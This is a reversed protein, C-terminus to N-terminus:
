SESCDLGCDIGPPTSVVLGSGLGTRTVTLVHSVPVDDNQITGVGQADAVTANTAGSLNVFFTENPEVVTDGLVTVSVPRTPVGPDFTLAGSAAVYDGGVTTATGDATAYSVSVTQSSAPSLSVTFTATTTGGDGEVVSVDDISLFPQIPTTCCTRGAVLSLTDVRWGTGAVSTDSGRRWRLQITQGSASAPLHATTTLFGGSSGSWAQRGGLPNSYAASLTLNYGGAVFSGGAALVDQFAGAGIKVELVAGDYGSELAYSHRFTLAIPATTAPVAINPSVLSTL